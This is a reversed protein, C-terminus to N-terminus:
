EWYYPEIRLGSFIVRQGVAGPETNGKWDSVVLQASAGRARFVRLHHNFWGENERDFGRGQHWKTGTYIFDGRPHPLEDAGEITVSLDTKKHASRGREIDDFDGTCMKLSYLRGPVLGEIKQSFRNPRAADRRTVLCTDAQRDKKYRGEIWFLDKLYGPFISDAGAPELTWHALGDAFDANRIHKLKYPDTSLRDTRGEICYHRFLRGGWRIIEEDAWTPDYLMVGAVGCMAPENAAAFLQKDLFTKFSVDAYTDLGESAGSFYGIVLVMGRTAGPIQEEWRAQEKSYWRDIIRDAENETAPSRIYLKQAIFGGNQIVAKPFERGPGFSHMQGFYPLYAKSATAPDARLRRVGESWVPWLDFFGCGYENGMSGSMTPATFDPSTKWFRVAEDVTLDPNYPRQGPAQTNTYLKGGRRKWERVFRNDPNRLALAEAHGHGPDDSVVTNVNPIVDKALFDWDIKFYGPVSHQTPYSVYILEPVRRVVLDRIEPRGQCRLHLLHRGAELERMTESAEASTHDRTIVPRDDDISVRIGEGQELRGAISVFVWGKRPNYFPLAIDNAGRLSETSFLEMVFNNLVKIERHETMWEPAARVRVPTTEVPVIAKGSVDRLVAEANYEGPPIRRTSFPLKVIGSSPLEGRRSVAVSEDSGPRKLQVVAVAGAPLGSVDRYDVDVQLIQREPANAAEVRLRRPPDAPLSEDVAASGEERLRAVEDGSLPREYADLRTILGRLPWPVPDRVWGRHYWQGVLMEKTDVCYLLPDKREAALTGNVYLRKWGGAPDHVAALHLWRGEPVRESSRMHEWVENKERQNAYQLEPRGGDIFLNFGFTAFICKRDDDSQPKVWVCVSLGKSYDLPPAFRCFLQDYDRGFYLGAGRPRTVLIPGSIRATGRGTSDRLARGSAKSFDWSAAPGSDAHGASPRSATLLAPVLLLVMAM